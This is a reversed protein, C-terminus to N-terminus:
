SNIQVVRTPLDNRAEIRGAAATAMAHDAFTEGIPLWALTGMGSKVQQEIRWRKPPNSNAMMREFLTAPREAPPSADASM